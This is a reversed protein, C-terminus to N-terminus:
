GSSSQGGTSGPRAPLATARGARVSLRVETGTARLETSLERIEISTGDELEATLRTTPGEPTATTRLETLIRAVVGASSGADAVAVAEPRVLIEIAGETPAGEVGTDGSIEGLPTTVRGGTAHGALLNVPGFSEAVDRSVSRHYVEEPSGVQVLRGARMIGIRDATALAEAPDHSVMLTAVRRERLLTLTTARVDERLRADLGSFPEDLLMIRPETALARALAVRQQQGGSLTHPMVAEFGSMGVQAILEGGAGREALERAMGFEVNDRVDLHPFLAYDQFVFGVARGEPLEHVEGSAVVRGGIDISGHRLRELGAILRLLTSKGSGSPGLLCVVEGPDVTLSVDDVAALTGFHHTVGTVTLQLDDGRSM